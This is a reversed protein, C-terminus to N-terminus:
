VSTQKIGLLIAPSLQHGKTDTNNCSRAIIVLMEIKFLALVKHHNM